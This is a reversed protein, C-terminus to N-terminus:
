MWLDEESEPKFKRKKDKKGKPKKEDKLFFDDIARQAEKLEMEDKAEDRLTQLEELKEKSEKQMLKVDM